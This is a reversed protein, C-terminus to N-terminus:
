FKYVRLVVLDFYPHDILNTHEEFNDGLCKLNERLVLPEERFGTSSITPLPFEGWWRDNKRFPKVTFEGYKKFGTDKAAGDKQLGNDKLIRDGDFFTFIFLGDKMLLSKVFASLETINDIIYHIAFNMFALHFCHKQSYNARHIIQERLPDLKESLDYQFLNAWLFKYSNSAYVRTMLQTLAIRDLDIGFYNTYRKSILMRTDAGRGCSIDLVSGRKVTEDAVPVHSYIETRLLKSGEHFKEITEANFADSTTDKQEFYSTESMLPAFVLGINSICTRYSNPHEKDARVRLPYYNKGDFSLEVIKEDFDGPSDKMKAIVEKIDSAINSPYQKAAEESLDTVKFIHSDQYYPTVFLSLKSDEGLSYKKQLVSNNIVGAAYLLYTNDPQLKLYYDNTNMVTRKLKFVRASNYPPNVEQLIAGDIYQGTEPSKEVTNVFAFLEELSTIRHYDKTTVDKINANKVAAMREIFSRGRVDEGNVMIADFCYLKGDYEECDLKNGSDDYFVRVGDTKELWVFKDPDLYKLDLHTLPVPQNTKITAATGKDHRKGGSRRVSGRRGGILTLEEVPTLRRMTFDKVLRILLIVFIVVVIAIVVLVVTSM